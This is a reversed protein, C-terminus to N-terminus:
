SDVPSRSRWFDGTPGGDPLTALWIPTDASMTLDMPRGDPRDVGVVPCCANVLIGDPALEDAFVRTLANVASKSVRYAAAGRPIYALGCSINVIRGYGGVRMLPAIAKVLRWMGFLNTDLTRGVLGLDVDAAAVDDDYLVSANNVLVDCRGLRRDLWAVLWNVSAEDSVDLQRVAVRDALDGLREIAAHGHEVARCALVVRMGREALRRVVELGLGRNGGTVVAVKQPALTKSM